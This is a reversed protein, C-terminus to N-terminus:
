RKVRRKDKTSGRKAPSPSISREEIVPVNRGISSLRTQSQTTPINKQVWGPGRPLRHFRAYDKDSGGPSVPPSSQTLDIIEAVTSYHKISQPSPHIGKGHPVSDSMNGISPEDRSPNSSRREKRLEVAPADDIKIDEREDSNKLKQWGRQRRTERAKDIKYFPNPVMSGSSSSVPREPSHPVEKKPSPEDKEQQGDFLEDMLRTYSIGSGPTSLMHLDDESPPLSSFNDPLNPPPSSYPIYQCPVDDGTSPRPVSPQDDTNTAPLLNTAIPPDSGSAGLCPQTKSEQAPPANPCQFGNFRPSKVNPSSEGVAARVANQEIMLNGPKQISQEEDEDEYLTPARSGKTTPERNQVHVKAESISAQKADGLNAAQLLKPDILDAFSVERFGSDEEDEYGPMEFGSYQPGNEDAGVEEVQRRDRKSVRINLIGDDYVDHIEAVRYDSVTPQWNTAKSVDLVKFALVCGRKLDDEVLDRVSSPDSPMQPLDDSGNETVQAIDEGVVEVDPQMSDDYDYQLDGDIFSGEGDIHGEEEGDYVQLRQKRKRKKGLGKRRRILDAAEYDWRQEFPFSPDALEIDDYFCETAKLVLRDEWNEDLNSDPVPAPDSTSKKQVVFNNAKGALKKRTTEEDEKTRPTRVGLSGFLLRRSSAVDLTRRKPEPTVENDEDLAAEHFESPVRPQGEEHGQEEGGQIHQKDLADDNVDVGGSHLDRLLKQRRSEFETMEPDESAGGEPIFYRGGSKEEFTKLAAFDAEPPLAGLSKLKSLRRRMKNRQNSKKTRLSGHGPANVIHPAAIKSEEESESSSTDSESDTDDESSSSDETSSVMSTDADSSDSSSSSSSSDSSESNQEGAPQAKGILSKNPPPPVSEEKAQSFRVAKSDRRSLDKDPFTQAVADAAASTKPAKQSTSPRSRLAYGRREAQEDDTAETEPMDSIEMDEKLGKLEEELDGADIESVDADSESAPADASGQINHHIITGEGTNEHNEHTEHYDEYEDEDEDGDLDKNDELNDEEPEDVGRLASLEQFSRIRPVAWETDGEEYATINGHAVHSTRRRKRPPITIAPRSSTPRKLFPKGFPVGDILHRGDTSIQHRGSLRRARLDTIQLARILVEDGDRLLGEVEMFHLCESGGVEVVYDELGWQGSFENDFLAPETELPIVENVDELLQAVTYGGNAYLANPARTSTIASSPAPFTSSANQGFSAPPTTTWLIRTVPLGHRQIILHLRM